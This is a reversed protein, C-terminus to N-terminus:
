GPHSLRTHTKLIQIIKTFTHWSRNTIPGGLRKEIQGFLSIAKQERKYLGLAFRGRLAVIRVLWEDGSPLNLSRELEPDRLLYFGALGAFVTLRTIGL